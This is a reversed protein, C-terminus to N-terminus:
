HASTGAREIAATIATISSSEAEAVQSEYRASTVTGGRAVYASPAKIWPEFLSVEGKKALLAVLPSTLLQPSGTTTAAVAKPTAQTARSESAPSVAAITSEPSAQMVRPQSSTEITGARQSRRPM